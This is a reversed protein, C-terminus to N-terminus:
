VHGHGSIRVNDRELFVAAIETWGYLSGIEAGGTAVPGAPNANELTM